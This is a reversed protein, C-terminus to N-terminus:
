LDKVVMLQKELTSLVIKFFCLPVVADPILGCVTSKRQHGRSLRLESLFGVRRVLLTWALVWSLLFADALFLPISPFLSLSCHVKCRLMECFSEVIGVLFSDCEELHVIKAMLGSVKDELTSILKMFGCSKSAKDMAIQAQRKM